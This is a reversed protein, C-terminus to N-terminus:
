TGGELWMRKDSSHVRVGVQGGARKGPAHCVGGGEAGVEAAGTGRLWSSPVKM